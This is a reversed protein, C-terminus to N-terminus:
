RPATRRAELEEYVATSLYSLAHDSLRDLHLLLYHLYIREPRTSPGPPHPRRGPEPAEPGYRMAALTEPHHERESGHLARGTARTLPPYVRAVPDLEGVAEDSAADPDPDGATPRIPASRSGSRPPLSEVVTSRYPALHPASDPGQFDTIPRGGIEEAIKRFSWTGRRRPPVEATALAEEM